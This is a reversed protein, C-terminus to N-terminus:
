PKVVKLQQHQTPTSVNLLFLGPQEGMPVRVRQITEAQDICQQHLVRGQLDVLNLHLVQHEAGTIDVEATQNLVPNGLVRVRLQTGPEPLAASRARGCAAKLNWLYTVLVGSQRAMLTFPTVDAATRSEMDVFQNPNTTWGTIGPAAQYEILTGNGGSTNFRFAGTACDYGPALLLLPNAAPPNPCVSRLNWIYTVLVGSQRAMLTFPTVDTATRSERDVFQNPNTTWGTIGPAAQYEILTGDGGSTNFTFAGTTCNYTPATLTLPNSGNTVIFKFTTSAGGGNASASATVSYVGAATPTGILLWTPNSSGGGEQRFFQGIGPPLGGAGVAWSTTVSSSFAGGIAFYVGQGVVVTMDAIPSVRVIAMANACYTQRSWTYTVLKGSQRASIMFPPIDACTRACADLIQNPNSTWSTIGPAMFEILTGDGGSTNFTIAGTSCNYTPETLTLPNGSQALVGGPLALSLAWSMMILWSQRSRTRYNNEM